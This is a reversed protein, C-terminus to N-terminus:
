SARRGGTSGWIYRKIKTQDSRDKDNWASFAAAAAEGHKPHSRLEAILDLDATRKLIKAMDRKTIKSLDTYVVLDDDLMRTLVSGGRDRQRAADAEVRQWYGGDVKKLGPLLQRSQSHVNASGGAMGSDGAITIPISRIGSTTNDVYVPPLDRAPPVLELYLIEENTPDSM